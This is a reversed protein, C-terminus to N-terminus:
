VRTEAFRHPSRAAIPVAWAGTVALIEVDDAHRDIWSSIVRAEALQEATLFSAVETASAVRQLRDITSATDGDDDGAAALQGSRIIIVRGGCRLSIEGAAMLADIRGTRAM